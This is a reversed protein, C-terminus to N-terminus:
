FSVQQHSIGYFAMSLIGIYILILPYGRFSIPAKESSLREYVISIIYLAFIFGIGSMLGFIIYDIFNDYKSVCLFITGFVVCNFASIHVFKRLKDFTKNFCKWIVILTIIYVFGVLVVYILPRILELNNINVISKNVFYSLVSIITTFYTVCIGFSLVDKKIKSIALLTSTGLANSFIINEFFVATLSFLIYNMIINM